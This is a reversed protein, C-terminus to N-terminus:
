SLHPRPTYYTRSHGRFEAILEGGALEVTVDYIGGRAFRRRETATAVLRDGRRAPRIFEIECSRAVSTMGHSNCAIAFACDALVFIFGGHVSGVGNVMMPSATMSVTATGPGVDDLAIGLAPMVGDADIMVEALRRVLALEPSNGSRPAVFKAAYGLRASAGSEGGRAPRSASAPQPHRGEATLRM